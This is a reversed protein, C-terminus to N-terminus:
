QVVRRAAPLNISWAGEGFADPLGHQKAGASCIRRYDEPYPIGDRHRKAAPTMMYTFARYFKQGCQVRFTSRTYIGKAVGECQDLCLLDDGTIRWLVGYVAYGPAEEIDAYLREVLRYDRLIATSFLRAGSCRALMRAGYCNSGYSWYLDDMLM